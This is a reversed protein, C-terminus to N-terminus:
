IVFTMFLKLSINFYKLTIDKTKRLDMLRVKILVDQSIDLNDDLISM